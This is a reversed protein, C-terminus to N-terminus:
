STLTYVLCDFATLIGPVKGAGTADLTFSRTEAPTVLAIARVPTVGALQQQESGNPPFADMVNFLAEFLIAAEALATEQQQGPSPIIYFFVGVTIKRLQNSQLRAVGNKDWGVTYGICPRPLDLLAKDWCDIVRGTPLNGISTTYITNLATIQANIAAVTVVSPIIRRVAEIM